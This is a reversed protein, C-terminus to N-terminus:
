WSSRLASATGTAGLTKLNAWCPLCPAQILSSKGSNALITSSTQMMLLTCVSAM